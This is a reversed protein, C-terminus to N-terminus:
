YRNLPSKRGCNLCDTKTLERPQNCGPCPFTSIPSSKRSQENSKSVFPKKFKRFETPSSSPSPVPSTESVKSRNKKLWKKDEESLEPKTTQFLDNQYLCKNCIFGDTYTGDEESFIKTCNRCVVRASLNVKKKNRAAIISSSITSNQCYELSDTGNKDITSLDIDFTLLLEVISSSRNYSCCYNLATRGENCKENINPNASLITSVMEFDSNICAIMLISLGKNNKVNVNLEDILKLALQHNGDEVSKILKENIDVGNETDVDEIDIPKFVNNSSMIIYIFSNINFINLKKLWEM